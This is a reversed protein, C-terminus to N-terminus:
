KLVSSIYQKQGIILYASTVLYDRPHSLSPSDHVSLKDSASIMALVLIFALAPALPEGDSYYGGM